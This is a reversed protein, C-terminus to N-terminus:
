DKSIANIKEEISKKDYAHPRHGKVGHIIKKEVNSRIVEGSDDPLTLAHNWQFRAENRRGGLWYANGLHDNILANAPELEAAKELYKIAQNYM